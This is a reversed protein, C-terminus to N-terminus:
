LINAGDLNWDKVMYGMGYNLGASISNNFSLPVTRRALEGLGAGAADLLAAKGSISGKGEALSVTEQMLPEKVAKTLVRIGTSLPKAFLGATSMGKLSANEASKIGNLPGATLAGAAFSFGTDVSEHLWFAGKGLQYKADPSHMLTGAVGKGLNRMFTSSGSRLGAALVGSGVDLAETIATGAGATLAGAADGALQILDARAASWHGSAIQDVDLMADVGFAFGAGVALDGGSV